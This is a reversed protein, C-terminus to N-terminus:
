LCEPTCSELVDKKFLAKIPHNKTIFVFINSAPKIVTFAPLLKLPFMDAAMKCFHVLRHLCLLLPSIICVDKFM